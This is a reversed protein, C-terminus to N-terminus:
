SLDNSYIFVIAAYSFPKFNLASPLGKVFYSIGAGFDNSKDFQDSFMKMHLRFHSVASDKSDATFDNSFKVSYYFTDINHLFKNKKFDFWYTNEVEDFDNYIQTNKLDRLDVM